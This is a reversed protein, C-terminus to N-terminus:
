IREDIHIYVKNKKQMSTTPIQLQEKTLNIKNELMDLTNKLTQFTKKKNSNLDSTRFESHTTLNTHRLHQNSFSNRLM